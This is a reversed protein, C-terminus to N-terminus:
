GDPEGFAVYSTPGICSADLLALPRKEFRIRRWWTERLIKIRSYHANLTKQHIVVPPIGTWLDTFLSVDEWRTEGPSGDLLASFTPASSTVDAAVTELREFNRSIGHESQAKHLQEKDSYQIWWTDDAAFVTNPRIESGHDHEVM